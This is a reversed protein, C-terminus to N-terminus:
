RRINRMDRGFHSLGVGQPQANPHDNHSVLIRQAALAQKPAPVAPIPVATSRDEGVMSLVARLPLSLEARDCVDSVGLRAGGYVM